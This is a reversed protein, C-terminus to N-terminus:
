APDVWLWIAALTSVTVNKRKGKKLERLLTYSVGCDRSLKMLNVGPLNLKDVTEQLYYDVDM